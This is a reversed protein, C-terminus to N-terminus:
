VAGIEAADNRSLMKLEDEAKQMIPEIEKLDNDAVAKEATLLQM